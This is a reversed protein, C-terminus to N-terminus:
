FAGIALGAAFAAGLEACRGLQEPGLTKPALIQSATQAHTAIIVPEAIQRLRWGTAIREIQRCANRGDSGACVISAYPRGNIRDLAVYYTREFFDKMLGSISALTEPTAFVYGGAKLMDNAQAATAHLLRVRVAPEGSAGHAAAEAAQLTAGTISHFVILLTKPSAFCAAPSPASSSMEFTLV